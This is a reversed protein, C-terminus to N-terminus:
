WNLDPNTIDIEKNKLYDLLEIFGFHRLDSFIPRCARDIEESLDLVEIDTMLAILLAPDFDQLEPIDQFCKYVSEIKQVQSPRNVKEYVNKFMWDRLTKFKEFVEGKSFSIRRKEQSEKLLARIVTDTRERQNRGLENVYKPFNRPDFGGYRVADNLDSFTYAIKDAFMVLDCEQPLDERVALDGKGRTHYLIGLLTAKTLNLGKGKREIHQAVIVGFKAHHFAENSLRKLVDEGLHGFPVHGIDHGAAIAQALNRDLGLAEAILTAIAFVENTHVARTRVHPNRPTTYVQTKYSGRRYAKSNLIRLLDDLYTNSSRFEVEDDSYRRKPMDSLKIEM